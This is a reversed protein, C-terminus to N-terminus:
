KYCVTPQTGDPTDNAGCINNVESGPNATGIKIKGAPLWKIHGDAFAFNNGGLHRPIRYSSDLAGMPQNTLIEYGAMFQSSGGFWPLDGFPDGDQLLMTASPAIVSAAHVSLYGLNGSYAYDTYSTSQYFWTNPVSNGGRKESPCQFLQNSKTYPLIADAWGFPGMSSTWSASAVGVGDYRPYRDDYDHVYQAIGLALQKLNSQCSARRANERARAFVPFLIAALIGIIAIVVLLEILTFGRKLRAYSELGNPFKHRM